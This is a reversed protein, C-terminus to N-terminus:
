MAERTRHFAQHSLEGKEWRGYRGVRLLQGSREWREFCTCQHRIPKEVSAVGPLPPKTGEPYEVTKHGFINSLRYWGIDRTGNCIVTNPDIAHSLRQGRDPADGLAWVQKSQFQHHRFGCLVRAPVSSIVLPYADFISEDRHPPNDVGLLSEYSVRFQKVQDKYLDWAKDYAERIDWAEHKVSLDEVSVSDVRTAGYVKNRYDEATGELLYQIVEPGSQTLGPIPAHLYQAGYMHSKRRNSYVDFDWGELALAHAAFLGAPGCGLVAARRNRKPRKRSRILM